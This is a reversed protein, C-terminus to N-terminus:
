EVNEVQERFKELEGKMDIVAQTIAADNAKSGITNIERLIEQGLFGLQRGVAERAALAERCVDLHTQLRLLEETIDLRDAIFAVEQALRSEDLTHGDLLEGVNRRLREREAVLREPARGAVRSAQSAISGIRRGLEAALAAGERERMALVAEVAASVVPAVEELTAATAAEETFVLVDPLRAVFGIDIDGPLALATKLERLAGIIERARELNVRVQPPRPPENLWRGALTIHGRELRQRLLERLEAELHQVNGPVKLQVNFHRHNVTRIEVQLRGGLVPGDAAGFGTM